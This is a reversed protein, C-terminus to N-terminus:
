ASAKLMAISRTTGRAPTYGGPPTEMDFSLPPRPASPRANSNLCARRLIQKIVPLDDVTGDRITFAPANM